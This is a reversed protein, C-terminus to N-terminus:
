RGKYKVTLASYSAQLREPELISLFLSTPGLGTASTSSPMCFTGPEIGMTEVKFPERASSMTFPRLFGRGAQTSSAAMLDSGM